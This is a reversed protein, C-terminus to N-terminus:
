QCGLWLRLQHGNISRNIWEVIVACEVTLKEVACRIWDIKLLILTCKMCSHMRKNRMNAHSVPVVAAAAAFSVVGNTRYIECRKENKIRCIVSIVHTRDVSRNYVSYNIELRFFWCQLCSDNRLQKSFDMSHPEHKPVTCMWHAQVGRSVFHKSM